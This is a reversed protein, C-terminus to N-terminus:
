LGAPCYTDVHLWGRENESVEVRATATDNNNSPNTENSTTTVRVRNTWVGASVSKTKLTIFAKTRAPFEAWTCTITTLTYTCAAGCLLAPTCTAITLAHQRQM